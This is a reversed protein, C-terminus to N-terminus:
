KKDREELLEIIKEELYQCYALLNANDCNSQPMINGPRVDFQNLEDNPYNGMTKKFDLRLDLPTMEKAYKQLYYKYLQTIPVGSLFIKIRDHPSANDIIWEAFNLLHYEHREIAEIAIDIKEM